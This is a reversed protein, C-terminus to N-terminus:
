SVCTFINKRIYAPGKCDLKELLRQIAPQFIVDSIALQAITSLVAEVRTVEADIAWGEAAQQNAKLRLHFPIRALLM